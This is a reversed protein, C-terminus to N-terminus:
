FYYSCASFLEFCGGSTELLFPTRLFKAFNVTFCSSCDKKSYISKRVSNNKQSNQSIKLFLKKIFYQPQKQILNVVKNGSCNKRKGRIFHFTARPVLNHIKPFFSSLAMNLSSDVKQSPPKSQLFLLQNEGIM